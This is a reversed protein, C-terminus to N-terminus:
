IKGNDKKECEKEFEIRKKLAQTLSEISPTEFFKTVATQEKRQVESLLGQSYEQYTRSIEDHFENSMLANIAAGFLSALYSKGEKKYFELSEKDEDLIAKIIKGWFPVLFSASLEKFATYFGITADKTNEILIQTASYGNKSELKLLDEFNSLTEPSGYAIFTAKEKAKETDCIEFLVNKSTINTRKIIAEKELEVLRRELIVAQFSKASIGSDKKIKIWVKQNLERYQQPGTLLCKLIEARILNTNGNRKQKKHESIM